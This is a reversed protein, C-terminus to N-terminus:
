AARRAGAPLWDLIILEGPPHYSVGIAPFKLRLRYLSIGAESEIQNATNEPDLWPSYYQRFQRMQGTALTRHDQNLWTNTTADFTEWVGDIQAEMWAHEAVYEVSRVTLGLALAVQIQAFTYTGCHSAEQALYADMSAPYQAVPGYPKSSHAIAMSYLGALRGPHDEQFAAALEAQHAYFWAAAGAATAGDGNSTDQFADLLPLNPNQKARSKGSEPVVEFLPAVWVVLALCGLAIALLAVAITIRSRIRKNM